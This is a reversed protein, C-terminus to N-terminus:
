RFTKGQWAWNEGPVDTLTIYIRDPSLKLMDALLETVSSAIEGNVRSDLGGISMVQVFAAGEPSGSMFMSSHSLSIMIYGAPKGTAESVTKALKEALEKEIDAGPDTDTEIRIFPMYIFGKKHFVQKM